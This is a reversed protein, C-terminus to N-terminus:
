KNGEGKACEPCIGKFITQHSHVIFGGAAAKIDLKSDYAVPIDFFKGCKECVFHSHGETNLDFRDAGPLKIAMIEGTEALVALNRYVTGLSINPDVAHVQDYIQDASPHDCRSRVADLIMQRQKTLRRNM